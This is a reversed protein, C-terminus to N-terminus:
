TMIEGNGLELGMDPTVDQLRSGTTSVDQLRSGTKSETETETEREREGRVGSTCM